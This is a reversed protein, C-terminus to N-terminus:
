SVRSIAKDAFHLIESGGDIAFFSYNSTHVDNLTNLPSTKKSCPPQLGFIQCLFKIPVDLIRQILRHLKPLSLRIKGQFVKFEIQM